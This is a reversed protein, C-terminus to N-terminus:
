ADVRVIEDDAILVAGIMESTVVPDVVRVEVTPDVVMNPYSVIIAPFEDPVCLV